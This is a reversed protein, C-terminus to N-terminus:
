RGDLQRQSREICDRLLQLSKGLIKYVTSAPRQTKAAIQKVTLENRYRDEILERQPGVLRDVCGQLSSHGRAGLQVDGRISDETLQHMAEESFWLRSNAARSRHSRIHISAFRIAWPMFPQSRDYVERKRWLAMNVEQLVDDADVQHPILSVIFTRLASQKATLIAVFEDDSSSMNGINLASEVDAAM